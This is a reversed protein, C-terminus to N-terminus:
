KKRLIEYALRELLGTGEPSVIRGKKEYKDLLNAEELQQIAVRIIKGSGRASHNLGHNKRNKGGYSKRLRNVGIPGFKKVKRLISACRVYWFNESDIPALEKFFATKWFESGEPPKIEPYEKLKEALTTILKDPEVVYISM